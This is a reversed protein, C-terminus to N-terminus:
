PTLQAETSEAAVPRNATKAPGQAAPKPQQSVGSSSSDSNSMENEDFQSASMPGDREETSAPFSRATIDSRRGLRFDREGVDPHGDLRRMRPPPQPWPM